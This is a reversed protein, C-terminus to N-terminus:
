REYTDCRNEWGKLWQAENKSKDSNSVRRRLVFKSSQSFELLAEQGIKTGNMNELVHRLGWGEGKYTETDKVGEGKFNVYDILAYLGNKSNAVRYFQYELNDKNKSKEKMKELSLRLREYIFMVQVDRTNYLFSTLEEVDKNKTDKFKMLEDRNKWPAYKNNKIIKPLNINKSKYYEVLPPFSEDFIGSENQKYWIFHGIGLSPFNEGKNWYVLNELKGGAENKFIKDGIISLEEKTINLNKNIQIEDQEIPKMLQKIRTQSKVPKAINKDSYSIFSLTILGFLIINKRM